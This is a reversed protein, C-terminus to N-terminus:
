SDGGVGCNLSMLEEKTIWSECEYMVVPFVMAKGLRVKTLLTIARSKLLSDLNTM